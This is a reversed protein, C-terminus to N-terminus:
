VIGKVQVDDSDGRDKLGQALHWKRWSAKKSGELEGM